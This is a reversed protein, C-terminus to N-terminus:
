GDLVRCGVRAPHDQVLAHAPVRRIAWVAAVDGGSVALMAWSWLALLGSGFGAAVLAPLLGLALAPLLATARYGRASVPDACCAFPTLSRRNLGLRVARAPARALLRFGLVHVLEHLLVSALLVVLVLPLGSPAPVAAALPAAGWYVIFPGLALLAAAPLWALAILNARGVSMSADRGTTV